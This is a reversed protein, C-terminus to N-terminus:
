FHDLFPGPPCRPAVQPRDPTWKQTGPPDRPARPRNADFKADNKTGNPPDNPAWKPTWKPYMKPGNELDIEPDSKPGRPCGTPRTGRWRLFTSKTNTRAGRTSLFPSRYVCERGGRREPELVKGRLLGQAALKLAWLGGGASAVRSAANQISFHDLLIMEVGSRCKPRFFPGFTINQIMKPDFIAWFHGGSGIKSWKQSLCPGFIAGPPM